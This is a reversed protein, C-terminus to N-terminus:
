RPAPSSDNEYVSLLQGRTLFTSGLEKRSAPVTKIQDVSAKEGVLFKFM